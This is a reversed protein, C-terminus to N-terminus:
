ISLWREYLQKALAPAGSLVYLLSLNFAAEPGFGPDDPHTLQWEEALDLVRNYHHAAFAGLNLQHFFRGFNYEVEQTALNDLGKNKRYEELYAAAQVILQQRNDARRGQSRGLISVALGLCILPDQPALAHAEFMYYLAGHNHKSANLMSGQIYWAIPSRKTPLKTPERTTAEESNDSEDEGDDEPDKPGRIATWGGRRVSWKLQVEGKNTDENPGGEMDEDSSGQRQQARRTSIAMDWIRNMRLIWKSLNREIFADTGRLGPPLCALFIRMPENNFQFDTMLARAVLVMEEHNRTHVTIALQAILLSFRAVPDLKLTFIYSTSVHKLIELAYEAQGRSAIALSYIIEVWVQFSLNRYSTPRINRYKQKPRETVSEIEAELRSAMSEEQAELGKFRSAKTRVAYRDAPYLERAERFDDVLTGALALWTSLAVDNKGDFVDGLEKIREYTHQIETTKAKERQQIEVRTLRRVPEAGPAKKKRPRKVDKSASILASQEIVRSSKDAEEENQEGKKRADIVEYVLALAKQPEKQAEYVEALKLKAAKNTPDHELVALANAPFVIHFNLTGLGYMNEADDLRGLMQYCVGVNTVTAVSLGSPGNIIREYIPIADEYAAKEVFADALEGFLEVFYQIDEKLVIEAHIRGEKIDGSKIRARALRHRLNVDLHYSLPKYAGEGDEDDENVRTIGDKDFERDDPIVDLHTEHGRGQLWRAGSRIVKIAQEYRGLAILADALAVVHFDHFSATTNEGNSDSTDPPGKPYAQRYHDFTGQLVEAAVEFDRLQSTISLIEDVVPINNPQRKLIKKLASLAEDLHGFEKALSAYEWYSQIPNGIMKCAKRFCYLAQQALGKERSKQGLQFWHEADAKLHAGMIDVQLAKNPEGLQEYCSALASWSPRHRPEMRIVEQFLQVAEQTQGSVFAFNADGFTTQAEASLKPGTSQGPKGSAQRVDDKFEEQFNFAWAREAANPGGLKSAFNRNFDGELELEMDEADDMIGITELPEEPVGTLSIADDDSDDQRNENDSMYIQDSGFEDNSDDEADSFGEDSGDLEVDEWSIMNKRGGTKSTSVRQPRSM